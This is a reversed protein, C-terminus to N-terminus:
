VPGPDRGGIGQRDSQGAQAREVPDAFSREVARALLKLQATVSASRDPPVRLALEELLAALRRCVQPSSRGYERIETVALALYADWQRGPVVLRAVGADDHVEFRAPLPFEALHHLMAEIHDLVQVATTPDNVAPSLARIAIDVLIRMAFAPDQTITREVGFAICGRLARPDPASRGYVELLVGGPPVFDGVSRTVLVVCDSRAALRVLGHPDLAQIAAGQEATVRLLPEGALVVPPEDAVVASGRAEDLVRMGWHGVLAAVAVPRLHHTFSDLYVLLMILSAGCAFGALWVGIDPVQEDRIRSLTGYAFAFTLAFTGLVVKQLRQHYWLRMFRPSLSSTAQQVVLVGITVVLGLLGVMAAVIATLVTTATSATYSWQPPLSVQDDLWACFRAALLGVAGSVLPLVWLSGRVYERARFRTAWTPAMM